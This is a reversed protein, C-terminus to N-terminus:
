RRVTGYHRGRQELLGEVEKWSLPLRDAPTRIRAFSSGTLAANGAEMAQQHVESAVFTDLSEDDTWATMTWARNGAIERRIRFGILGTHEGDALSQQVKGVHHWFVQNLAKDDGTVALTLGVTVEGREEWPGSTAGAPTTYPSSIKCASLIALLSVLTAPLVLREMMAMKSSQHNQLM